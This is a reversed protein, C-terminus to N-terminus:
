CYDFNVVGNDSLTTVDDVGGNESEVFAEISEYSPGGPLKRTM